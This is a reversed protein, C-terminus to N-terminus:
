FTVPLWKSQPQGLCDWLVVTDGRAWTDGALICRGDLNSVLFLADDNNVLWWFQNRQGAGHCDWVQVITDNGGGFRNDADLCRNLNAWPRIEYLGTVDTSDFAWKQFGTGNCTWTQMKGGNRGITDSDADLCSNNPSFNATVNYDGGDRLNIQTIPQNVRVDDMRVSVFRPFPAANAHGVAIGVPVAAVTVAAVMLAARRRLQRTFRM